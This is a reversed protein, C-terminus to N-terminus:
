ARSWSVPAIKHCCLMTGSITQSLAGVVIQVVSAPHGPPLQTEFLTQVFCAVCNQVLSASQSVLMGPLKQSSELPPAIVDDAAMSAPRLWTYMVVPSQRCCPAIPSASDIMAKSM